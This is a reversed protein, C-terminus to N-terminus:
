KLIERLNLHVYEFVLCLHMRYNFNDLMRIVFRQDSEDGENLEKLIDKEKNGSQVMLDRLRIIKIGVIKDPDDEEATMDEAKVVLSFM